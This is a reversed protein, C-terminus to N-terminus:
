SEKVYSVNLTVCKDDCATIAWRLPKIGADLLAREIIEDDFPFNVTLKISESVIM